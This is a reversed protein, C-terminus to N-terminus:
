RWLDRSKQIAIKGLRRRMNRFSRSASERARKRLSPAAVLSRPLPPDPESFSPPPPAFHPVPSDLVDIATNNDVFRTNPCFQFVIFEVRRALMRRARPPLVFTRVLHCAFVQLATVTLFNEDVRAIRVGVVVYATLLALVATKIHERTQPPSHFLPRLMTAFFDQYKDVLAWSVVRLVDHLALSACVDILFDVYTNIRVLNCLLVLLHMQM